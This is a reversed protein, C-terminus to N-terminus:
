PQEEGCAQYRGERKEKYLRLGLADRIYQQVSEGNQTAAEEVANFEDLSLRLLVAMSGTPESETEESEESLKEPAYRHKRIDEVLNKKKTCM